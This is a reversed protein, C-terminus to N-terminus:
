LGGPPVLQSLTGLSYHKIRHRVMETARQIVQDGMKQSCWFIWMGNGVDLLEGEPPSVLHGPGVKIGERGAYSDLVEHIDATWKQIDEKRSSLHSEAIIRALLAVTEDPDIKWILWTLPGCWLCFLGWSLHMM